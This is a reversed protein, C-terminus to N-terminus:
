IAFLDSRATSHPVSLDLCPQKTKMVHPNDHAHVVALFVFFVVGWKNPHFEYEHSPSRLSLFAFMKRKDSHSKSRTSKQLNHKTSIINKASHEQVPVNRIIYALSFM